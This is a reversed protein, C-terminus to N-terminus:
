TTFEEGGTHSKGLLCNLNNSHKRWGLAPVLYVFDFDVIYLRGSLEGRIFNGAHIDRPIVGRRMIGYLVNHIEMSTPGDSKLLHHFDRSVLDDNIEDGSNALLYRLNNGKIYVMEIVGEKRDIRVLTPVFPLGRLRLLAAAELYFDWRLYERVSELFGDRRVRLFRKRVCVVGSRLIIHLRRRRRPVIQARVNFLQTDRHDIAFAFGDQDIEALDRDRIEGQAISPVSRLPLSDYGPEPRSIRRTMLAWSVELRAVVYLVGSAFM